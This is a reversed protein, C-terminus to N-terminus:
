ECAARQRNRWLLRVLELDEPTTVKINDYGGFYVDVPLGQRELLSADDTVEEEVGEYATRITEWRFVQPTQTAWLQSRPPTCRVRNGQEVVKITDRSPVAAVAAGVAQAAELGLRILDHTVMPRAGDQILVWDCPGLAALGRAVSHQRLEGGLCVAIVKDWGSDRVLTRGRELNAAGMVLVMKDIDPSTQFVSVTRALLPAGELDAFMKDTGMRSSSGAAVVVAGTRTWGRESLPSGASDPNM